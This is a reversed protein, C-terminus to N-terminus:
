VFISDGSASDQEPDTHSTQKRPVRPKPEVIASELLPRGQREWEAITQESPEQLHTLVGLIGAYSLGFGIHEKLLRLFAKQEASNGLAVQANKKQILLEKRKTLDAIRQELQAVKEDMTKAAM